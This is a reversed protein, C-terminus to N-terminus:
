KYKKSIQIDLDKSVFEIYFPTAITMLLHWVAHSDFIYFFPSIDLIEIGGAALLCGVSYVIQRSHRFKKYHLFITFNCICSSFFILACIIKNYVYDFEFFGMKYVHMIFFYLGLKLTTHSVKKFSKPSTLLILRNFSVLFGVLISAIAAFYDAYRTFATERIHFMFSSLFATNAVYYQIYYLLYMPSKSVKHRIKTRFGHLMIFFCLLSFISSFGETMGFIPKFGWRGNRKINKLKLNKLCDVHCHCSLKEDLTRGVIRDIFNIKIIKEVLKKCSTECDEM